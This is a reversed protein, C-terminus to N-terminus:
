LKIFFIRMYKSLFQKKIKYGLFNRNPVVNSCSESTINFSKATKNRGSKSNEGVFRAHLKLIHFDSKMINQKNKSKKKHRKNAEDATGPLWRYTGLHLVMGFTCGRRGCAADTGKWANRILWDGLSGALDLARIPGRTDLWTGYGGNPMQMMQYLAVVAARWGDRIHNRAKQAVLRHTLLVLVRLTSSLWEIPRKMNKLSQWTIKAIICDKFYQVQTFISIEPVRPDTAVSKKRKKRM